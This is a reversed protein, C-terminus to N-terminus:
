RRNVLDDLKTSQQQSHQQQQISSEVHPNRSKGFEGIEEHGAYFVISLLLYVVWAAIAGVLPFLIYFAAPNALSPVANVAVCTGAFCTGLYPALYLMGDFSYAGFQFFVTTYIFRVLSASLHGHRLNEDEADDTSEGGLLHNYLQSFVILFAGLFELGFIVGSSAGSPGPVGSAVSLGYWIAGGILSGLVQPLAYLFLFVVIGTRLALTYGLSITLSLHRPLEGQKTHLRWGTAMYYTAGAVIGILGGQLLTDTSGSVTSANKALGV